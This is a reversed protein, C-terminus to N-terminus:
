SQFLRSYLRDQTAQVLEVVPATQAVDAVTLTRAHALAAALHAHMRHHIAQAEVPGTCGLRVAASLAGRLGLHLFTALAEHRDVALTRTVFGFVPALHGDLENRAARARAAVLTDCRFSRAAVDLLARGQTRSARAAVHSWLMARSLADLEELRHPDDHAAAVIPLSSQALQDVLTAFFREVSEIEGAQLMAELGSSHAFGGTPFASDALQLVIWSAM